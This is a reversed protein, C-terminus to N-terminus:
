PHRRGREPEQVAFQGAPRPAGRLALALVPRPLAPRPPAPAPHARRDAPSARAGGALTQAPDGPIILVLSFVAFSIIILLPVMILLRRAIFTALSGGSSGM